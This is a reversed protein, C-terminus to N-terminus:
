SRSIEILANPLKSRLVHSRWLYLLATTGHMISLVLWFDDAKIYLTNLAFRMLLYGNIWNFFGMLFSFKMDKFALIDSIPIYGLMVFIFCVWVGWFLRSISEPELSINPFLYTFTFHPFFILPISALATILIVLTFASYLAKKLLAYSQTGLFNSVITIQAQCLADAFLPLFLFLTGGVSLALMYDSGKAAMLHAVSAWCTFNLVRNCVRLLGPYICEQFLKPQLKWTHSNYIQENKKCLFIWLLIGCFLGQAILTSIAGGLIGYAPIWTKWGFILIYALALKIMQSLLTLGLILRTKGQGLYFCSLAAGLPYIFNMGMLFRYYPIALEQIAMGKFYFDGYVWGVPLTIIMSILSFWIFQWLGPGICKLDRAGYWRGVYVQAMMALAVCSGQFISSAYASSIAAEMAQISLRALLLKEVFLFLYNSFTVLSLPIFLSLLSKLGGDFSSVNKVPDVIM